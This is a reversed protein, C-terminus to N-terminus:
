CVKTQLGCIAFGCIRSSMGSDCIAFGFNIQEIRLNFIWLDRGLVRSCLQGLITSFNM